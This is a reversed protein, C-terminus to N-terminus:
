STKDGKGPKGDVYIFIPNSYFWLDKWAEAAGDISQHATVLYDPLPNGDADTEDPTNPALNTGRLRFYMDKDVKVMTRIVTWGERDVTFDPQSFTAIVKTRENTAKTYDPSGPAIKGTIEGAILDIHDVVPVDDHHNSAPSKFKITIQVPHGKGHGKLELEGGMPVKDGQAQASFELGDILDGFVFFSNGSRLGNAIENLSIQGDHNKNVAYVYTKQYEGPYFDDGGVTWHKHYDSNAFNFWRRGEGLLADWLGGVKASYYGVGGYTGGFDKSRTEDPIGPTINVANGFGRWKNVQHGPAGEFGFCIDPAANNFDRFHEINYGGGSNANWVGDREIHAFIIWANDIKNTKYQKEMWACAAVADAHREPYTKDTVTVSTPGQVFNTRGNQKTLTGYKKMRPDNMIDGLFDYDSTDFQYEFASVATADKGVVSVSCHEHGPVNWEVGSFIRKAPYIGRTRFIDPYAYDRLSQWRWMSRHGGDIQTAGLITVEPRTDWFVNNGDQPRKGGHESNSWWDLGFENNKGMAFDFTTAGDTYFTHQHFDGIVWKGDPGQKAFAPGFYALGLSLTLLATLAYLKLNKKLSM